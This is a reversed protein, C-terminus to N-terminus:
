KDGDKDSNFLSTKMPVPKQRFQEMYEDFIELNILVTGGTGENIKYAAGAARAMEIFRHRGISYIISGEGIRVFKKIVQRNSGPVKYLHKMYNDVREKHILSIRPLKYLAGAAIAITEMDEKDLGYSVALEEVRIYRKSINSDSMYLRVTPKLKNAM